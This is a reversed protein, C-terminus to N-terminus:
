QGQWKGATSNVSSLTGQALRYFCNAVQKPIVDGLGRDLISCVCVCMCLHAYM